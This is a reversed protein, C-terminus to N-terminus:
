PPEEEFEDDPFLEEDPVDGDYTKYRRNQLYADRIFVYPDFARQIEEDAGLVGYRLHVLYWIWLATAGGNDPLQVLLSAQTGVLDGVASSVTYPGFIPVMLYPGEPLGWASFTQGFDEDNFRLGMKEAPDLLGGLGITSNIAFRALDAGGQRAKGQLFDNIVTIPYRLNDFFNGAGARFARPAKEYAKAVPKALYRDGFDNFKYVVRNVPEFPDADPASRQAGSSGACGALALVALAWFATPLLIRPSDRATM